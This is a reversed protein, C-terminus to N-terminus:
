RITWFPSSLQDICLMILDEMFNYLSDMSISANSVIASLLHQARAQPLDVITENSICVSEKAIKFLQKICEEVSNQFKLFHIGM